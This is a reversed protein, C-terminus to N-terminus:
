YTPESVRALVVTQTPPEELSQWATRALLRPTTQVMKEPRQEFWGTLPRCYYGGILVNSALFTSPKVFAASAALECFHACAVNNYM